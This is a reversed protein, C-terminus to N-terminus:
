VGMNSAFLCMLHSPHFRSSASHIAYNIVGPLKDIIIAQMIFALLTSQAIVGLGNTIGAIAAFLIPKRVAKSQEKLWVACTKERAKTKDFYAQNDTETLHVSKQWYHYQHFAYCV